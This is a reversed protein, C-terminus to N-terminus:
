ACICFYEGTAQRRSAPQKEGPGSMRTPVVPSADVIGLVDVAVVPDDVLPSVAVIVVEADPGVGDVLVPEVDDSM